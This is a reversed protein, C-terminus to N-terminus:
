NADTALRHSIVKSRVVELSAMSMYGIRHLNAHCRKCIFVRNDAANNKHNWDLHHEDLFDFRLCIFCQAESRM